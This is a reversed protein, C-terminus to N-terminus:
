AVKAKPDERPPNRIFDRIQIWTGDEEVVVGLKLINSYSNDLYMPIETRLYNDRVIFSPLYPDFFDKAFSHKLYM